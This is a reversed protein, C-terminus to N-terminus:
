ALVKAHVTEIPMHGLSMLLLGAAPHDNKTRTHVVKIGRERLEAEAKQFLGAGVGSKRAEPEVYFVDSEAWPTGLYHPHGNKPLFYTLYGAMRGDNRATVILLEGREDLAAYAAHNVNLPVSDRNRAVEQWHREYLSKAEAMVDLYRETQFTVTM